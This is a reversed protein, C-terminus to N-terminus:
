DSQGQKGAIKLLEEMARSFYRGRKWYFSLERRSRDGGLKYYVVEPNPPVRSILTDSIFSIGMGSCTINYSTMQQDLEFLVKPEFGYSLCLETGRKGTDNDPKLIIFPEERFADLPVPPVAPDLFTRSRVAEESLQFSCLGGNVAFKRPVALLLYEEQFVRREFRSKDLSSNDMVLDVGGRQLLEELRGTSEEVLVLKVAPYLHAFEGMLAPLVWSSYLSSGGLILSGSKLDGWDNVFDSFENEISLIREVSRIYKEGCETLGLPKTSRDFIPYGVKKEVRKVAASLYPQSIFLKQAARSFSKETYVEYVYEMGQFM